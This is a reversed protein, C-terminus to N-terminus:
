NKIFRVIERYVKQDDRKYILTKRKGLYKEEVLNDLRFGCKEIKELVDLYLLKTQHVFVPISMVVVSKEELIKAFVEFSKVYLEELVIIQKQIFQTSENGRLAKGLYGESVICDIGEIAIRPPLSLVDSEFVEYDLKKDFTNEYWALNENSDSVARPLIDSGIIKSFGLEGAMLLITGSGCFPDYVVGRCLSLNLMMQALKPPMMGSQSDVRPRKYDIRGFREFDQIAVTKFCYINEGFALVQMDLGSSSILKEKSVIVASLDKNKSIVIRIKINNELLSKKIRMQEKVLFSYMKSPTRYFSFGIKIKKSTDLNNNIYKLIESKFVDGYSLSTLEFELKGIKIVGGLNIMALSPDFNDGLNCILFEDEFSIIEYKINQLRFFSIIEASSIKSSHGLIFSYINKM